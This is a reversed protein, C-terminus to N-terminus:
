KGGIECILDKEETKKLDVKEFDNSAKDCPIICQIGFFEWKEGLATQFSGWWLAPIDVHETDKSKV